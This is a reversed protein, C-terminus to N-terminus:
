TKNIRSKVGIINAIMSVFLGFFSIILGFVDLANIKLLVIIFYIIIAFNIIHSLVALSDEIEM